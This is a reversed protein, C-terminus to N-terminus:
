CVRAAVSVSVKEAGAGKLCRAASSLTAGTTLVDDILLIHKGHIAATAEPKVAFAMNVNDKRQKRTKRGQIPTNRQRILADPRYREKPLNARRILFRALEASQNYRREFFRFRHLPIPIIVDAAELFPLSRGLMMAGLIPTIDHRDGYKLGLIMERAAGDYVMGAVAEDFDQPQFMCAGCVPNGGDHQFPLACRRCATGTGLRLKAWCDPCLGGEKVLSSCLPCSPPALANLLHHLLRLDRMIETKCLDNFFHNVGSANKSSGPMRSAHRCGFRRRKNILRGMVKETVLCSRAKIRKIEELDSDGLTQRIPQIDDAPIERERQINPAMRTPKGGPEHFCPFNAPNDPDVRRSFHHRLCSCPPNLGLDRIIKVQRKRFGTHIGDKGGESKMPDIIQGPQNQAEATV